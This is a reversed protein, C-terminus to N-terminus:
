NNLIQDINTKAEVPQIEPESAGITFQSMDILERRPHGLATYDEQSDQTCTPPLTPSAM